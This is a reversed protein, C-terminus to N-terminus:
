SSDSLSGVLDTVKVNPVTIFLGLKYVFLVLLTFLIRNRLEKDKVLLLWSHPSLRNTKTKILPKSHNKFM